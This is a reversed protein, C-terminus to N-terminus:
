FLINILLSEMLVLKLTPTWSFDLKKRMQKYAKQDEKSANTAYAKERIEKINLYYLYVGKNKKLYKKLYPEFEQCDKCDPRGIYLVFDEKQKLKKLVTEYNM